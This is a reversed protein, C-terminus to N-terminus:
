FINEPGLIDFGGSFPRNNKSKKSPRKDSVATKSPSGALKDIHAQVFLSNYKIHNPLRSALLRLEKYIEIKDSYVIRSDDFLMTAMHFIRSGRQQCDPLWALGKIEDLKKIALTMSQMDGAPIINM